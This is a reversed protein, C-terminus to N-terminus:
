ECDAEDSGDSCDLSANCRWGAAEQGDECYLVEGCYRRRQSYAAYDPMSRCPSQTMCTLSFSQCKAGSAASTCDRLSELHRTECETIDPFTPALEQEFCRKSDLSDIRLGSYEHADAFACGDLSPGPLEGFCRCMNRALDLAAGTHREYGELMAGADRAGGVADPAEGASSPSSAAAGEGGSGGDPTATTPAMREAHGASKGCASWSGIMMGALTVAQVSTPYRLM